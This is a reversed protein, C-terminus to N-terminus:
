IQSLNIVLLIINPYSKTNIKARKLYEFVGLFKICLTNIQFSDGKIKTTCFWLGM